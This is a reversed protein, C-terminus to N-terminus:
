LSLALDFSAEKMHHSVNIVSKLILHTVMCGTKELCTKAPIELNNLRFHLPKAKNQQRYDEYMIHINDINSQSNETCGVKYPM